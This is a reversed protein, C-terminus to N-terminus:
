TTATRKATERQTRLPRKQREDLYAFVHVGAGIVGDRRRRIRRLRRLELWDNICHLFATAQAKAFSRFEPVYELPLDPIQAARDVLGDANETVSFNLKLTNLLLWISRAVHEQMSSDLTPVVLIRSTPRYRNRGVSTVVGVSQFRAILETPSVNYGEAKILAELSPAPGRLPIARPNASRDLYLRNRHWEELIQAAKAVDDRRKMRTRSASTKAESLARAAVRQISSHNMGGLMMFEFIASLIDSYYQNKNKRSNM